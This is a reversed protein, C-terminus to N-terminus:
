DVKEVLDAKILDDYIKESSIKHEEEVGLYYIPIYDHFTGDMKLFLYGTSIYPGYVAKVKPPFVEKIYLNMDEDYEFGFKEFEKLDVIDKVKYM